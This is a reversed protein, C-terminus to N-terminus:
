DPQEGNWKQYRARIKEKFDRINNKDLSSTDVPEHFHVHVTGPRTILSRGPCLDYTGEFYIPIIPYGLNIATHFAGSKFPGIRGTQSRTGEPAFMLSLRNKRIHKYAEQLQYFAKRSDKRDIMIQGSAKIIIWFFPNYLLERKAIFRIRPLMISIVIFLDLTSSHNILFVAPEEPKKDHYHVQVRVGAVALTTRGLIYGIWKILFDQLRGLSLLMLLIMAASLIPLLVILWVLTVIMRFKQLLGPQKNM